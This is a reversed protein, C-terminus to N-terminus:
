NLMLYNLLRRQKYGEVTGSNEVNIQSDKDVILHVVYIVGYIEGRSGTNSSGFTVKEGMFKEQIGSGSFFNRAAYIKNQRLLEFNISDYVIM